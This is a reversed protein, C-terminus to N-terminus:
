AQPCERPRRVPDPLHEHSIIRSPRWFSRFAWRGPKLLAEHRVDVNGSTAEGASEDIPRVNVTSQIGDTM